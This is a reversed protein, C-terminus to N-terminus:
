EKVHEDGASSIVVGETGFAVESQVEEQVASM